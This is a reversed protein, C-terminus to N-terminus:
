MTDSLLYARDLARLQVAEAVHEVAIEADGALDACSRSLKLVGHYARASLGLREIAGALLARSPRDLRCIRAAESASL